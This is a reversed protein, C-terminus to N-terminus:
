TPSHCFPHPPPPPPTPPPTPTQITVNRITSNPVFQSAPSQTSVPIQNWFGNWQGSIQPLQPSLAIAINQLQAQYDSIRAMIIPQNDLAIKVADHMSLAQGNLEDPTPVPRIGGPP